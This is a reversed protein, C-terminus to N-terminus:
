PSTTPPSSVLPVDLMSVVSKVNEVAKLEDRLKAINNLTEPSFLAQKPSYTVILFEESGYKKAISRFYKLAQDNELILSDSSTDM